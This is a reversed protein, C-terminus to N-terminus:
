VNEILADVCQSLVTGQLKILKLNAIFATIAATALAIQSVELNDFAQKLVDIIDAFKVEYDLDLEKNTILLEFMEDIEEALGSDAKELYVFFVGIAADENEKGLM